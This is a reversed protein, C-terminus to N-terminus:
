VSFRVHMVDGDSVVYEKGELRLKGKEKCANLGGLDILDQYGVVEARIFGRELDTHIRGAAKQAGTGAVVTWARVEDEGVTFFSILNMARYAERAILDLPPKELGMERAFEEQEDPPLAAVEAAVGLDMVAHTRGYPDDPVAVGDGNVIVLQPIQTTFAYGAIKARDQDALELSSLFREGELWEKCKELIAVRRPDERKKAERELSVECAALDNLIMEEDMAARDRAPDPADEHMPSEFGRVVHIYLESGALSKLYREAESRRATPDPASWPVEKMRIEAFTTKKPKYMASLRDVRADPVKVTVPDGPRKTAYAEPDGTMAGVLASKGCGGMGIVAAQVFGRGAQPTDLSSQVAIERANFSAIPGRAPIPPPKGDSSFESKGSKRAPGDSSLESKRTTDRFNQLLLPAM